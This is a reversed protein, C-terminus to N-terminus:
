SAGCYLKEGLREGANEVKDDDSANDMSVAVTSGDRSAFVETQAGSTLGEHGYVTGCGYDQRYIGLGSDNRDFTLFRRQTADDLLDGAILARYFTVLDRASSVIAGDAWGLLITPGLAATDAYGDGPDALWGNGDLEYGHVARGRVRRYADFRTDALRLPTFIRATLERELARGTVNEVILGLLIWNTNSYQYGRGPAFALPREAGLRALELPRVTLRVGRRDVLKEFADSGYYDAIGSTHRLLHDVTIEAGRPVLGPLVESVTATLALKGEQVLQLVVAAVFPKTASAVIWRDTVRM